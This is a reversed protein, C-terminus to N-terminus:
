FVSIHIHDYHCGTINNPNPCQYISSRYPKWAPSNASWEQGQWIIYNIGYTAQNQTLWTALAWGADVQQADDPNFFLDCAKGLPHDSAPNWEHKDWCSAGRGALGAQDIAAYLTAMRPTVQGGTGSPDPVTARETPFDLAIPGSTAGTSLGGYDAAIGLVKDVYLDSHNYAFVADRLATQAGNACLMRAAAWIANVPNFPDPPNAGGVPAPRAYQAFTAPLFQMPGQAGSIPHAGFKVGLLDARGHDSEAKGIAALVTWALGPCEQAAQQYIRLYDPPIDQVANRTAVLPRGGGGGGGFIAGAAAGGAGLLVVPLLALPALTAILKTNM